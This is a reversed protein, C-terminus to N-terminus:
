PRVIEWDQAQSFYNGHGEVCETQTIFLLGQRFLENINERLKTKDSIDINLASSLADLEAYSMTKFRVVEKGLQRTVVQTQLQTQIEEDTEVSVEAEQEFQTTCTDTIRMEYIEQEPKNQILDMKMTVTGKFSPPFLLDKKSQIAIM